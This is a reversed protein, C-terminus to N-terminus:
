FVPLGLWATVTPQAIRKWYNDHDEAARLFRKLLVVERVGDGLAINETPIFPCLVMSKEM